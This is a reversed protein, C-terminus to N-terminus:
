KKRRSTTTKSPDSFELGLKGSAKYVLKTIGTSLFGIVVGVAVQVGAQEITRTGEVFMFATAIIISMLLRADAVYIKAKKTHRVAYEIALVIAWTAGMALMTRPTLIYSLVIKWADKPSDAKIPFHEEVKAQALCLNYLWCQMIHV